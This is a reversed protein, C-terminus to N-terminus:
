TASRVKSAAARIGEHPDSIVLKVGRLCRLTFKRLFGTWIPEADSAGIELGLVGRREDTNVGIAIIVAASAIRGGRRVKLDTADIWLSLSPWDGEPPRDLFAKVKGDVEECLRSVQRKSIGPMGTAKVLDDVSRTFVGQVCAEQIMAALAKEAIRRLEPFGPVYSGKRLKPIRLAVAGACTERNQDHYGNRHVRRAPDNEGYAAGTVADVEPVMLRGAAFGIMGCPLDADPVKEVLHRVNMMDTTM